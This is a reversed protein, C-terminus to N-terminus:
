KIVAGVGMDSEPKEKYDCDKCFQAGSIPCYGSNSFKVKGWGKLCEVEAGASSKGPALHEHKM